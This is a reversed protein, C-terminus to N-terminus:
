LKGKIIGDLCSDFESWDKMVVVCGADTLVKRMEEEKEPEYSGTYGITKIKARFAATAGSKSDEVAVCESADKGLVEMAHLYIAPDPKSTPKPLSTAASFVDKAFYKDQGVKEISAVVRRLASSSVVALKFKGQKALEEDGMVYKYKAKLSVMMGRFNQGVFENLLQPGTHRHPINRSALIENALEACGM